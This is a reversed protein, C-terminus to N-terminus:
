LLLIVMNSRHQELLNLNFQVYFHPKEVLNEQKSPVSPVLSPTSSADPTLTHGMNGWKSLRLQLYM